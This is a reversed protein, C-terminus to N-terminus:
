FNKRRIQKETTTRIKGNYFEVTMEIDKIKVSDRIPITFQYLNEDMTGRKFDHKFSVKKITAKYFDSPFMYIWISDKIKMGHIMAQPMPFDILELMDMGLGKLIDLNDDSQRWRVIKKDKNEKATFYYTNCDICGLNPMPLGNACRFKSADLRKQFYLWEDVSLDKTSVYYITDHKDIQHLLQVKYQPTDMQRYVSCLYDFDGWGGHGRYRYISDYDNMNVARGSNGRVNHWEIDDTTAEFQGKELTSCNTKATADAIKVDNKCAIFSLCYALFLANKM